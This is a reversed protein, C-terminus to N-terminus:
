SLQMSKRRTNKKCGTAQAQLSLLVLPGIGQEAIHMNLGNTEIFRHSVAQTVGEKATEESSMGDGKKGVGSRAVGTGPEHPPTGEMSGQM